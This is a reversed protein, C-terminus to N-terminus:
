QLGVTLKQATRGTGTAIEQLGETKKEALIHPALLNVPPKVALFDHRRDGMPGLAGLEVLVQPNKSGCSGTEMM